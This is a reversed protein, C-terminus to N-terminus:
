EELCVSKSIGTSKVPLDGSRGKINQKMQSNNLFILSKFKFEKGPSMKTQKVSSWGMCHLSPCFKRCSLSYKRHENLTIKKKWINVSRHMICYVIYGPESNKMLMSPTLHIEQVFVRKLKKPKTKLFGCWKCDLQVIEASIVNLTHSLEVM